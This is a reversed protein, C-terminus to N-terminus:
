KLYVEEFILDAIGKDLMARDKASLNKRMVAAMISQKLNRPFIKYKDLLARAREADGNAVADSFDRIIENKLRRDLVKDRIYDQSEKEISPRAIFMRAGFQLLSEEYILDGRSNRVPYRGEESPGEALAKGSQVGRQVINPVLQRGAVEKIDKEGSAAELLEGFMQMAPGFGYPAIGGGRM